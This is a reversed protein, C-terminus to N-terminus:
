KKPLRRNNFELLTSQTRASTERGVSGVCNDINKLQYRLRLEEPKLEDLRKLIEKARKHNPNGFNLEIYLSDTEMRIKSQQKKARSLIKDEHTPEITKTIGADKNFKENISDAIYKRTQRAKLSDSRYVIYTVIDFDYFKVPKTSDLVNLAINSNTINGMEDNYKNIARSIRGQTLGTIKIIAKQSFFNKGSEKDHVFMTGDALEVIVYKDPNNEKLVLKSKKNM